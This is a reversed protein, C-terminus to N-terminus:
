SGPNVPAPEQKPAPCRTEGLAKAMEPKACLRTVAADKMGLNNLM